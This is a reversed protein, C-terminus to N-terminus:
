IEDIDIQGKGGAFNVASSYKWHEPETVFGAHVPNDHIYEIKQEIVESSWLEIPQNHQQWFQTKQKHGSKKAAREFMWNIWEQRSEINNEKISLQLAKSTYTKLEKLLKAPDNAKDRFILHVHSPMICWCFLEMGKNKRCFDLSETFVSFYNERVFVDIWYVIAFSVFYLGEPNKFKYKRSM